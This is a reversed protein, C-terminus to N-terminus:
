EAELSWVGTQTVPWASSATFPLAKGSAGTKRCAPFERDPPFGSAPPPAERPALATPDAVRFFSVCLALVWVVDVGGVVVVAGRDSVGAEDDVPPSPPPPPRGSHSTARM